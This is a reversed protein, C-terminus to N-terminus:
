RGVQELMELAMALVARDTDSAVTVRARAALLEIVVAGRPAEDRQTSPTRVVQAL